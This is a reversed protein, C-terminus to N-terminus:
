RHCAVPKRVDSRLDWSGAERGCFASAALLFPFMPKLAETLLVERPHRGVGVDLTFRAGLQTTVTLHPGPHQSAAGSAGGM